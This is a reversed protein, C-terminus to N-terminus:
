FYFQEILRPLTQDFSQFLQHISANHFKIRHIAISQSFLYFLFVMVFWLFSISFCIFLCLSYSWHLCRCQFFIQEDSFKWKSHNRFTSFNINVKQERNTTPMIRNHILEEYLTSICSQKSFQIIWVKSGYKRRWTKSQTCIYKKEGRVEETRHENGM